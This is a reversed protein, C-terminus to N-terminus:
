RSKWFLVQRLLGKFPYNVGWFTNLFMFKNFVKMDKCILINSSTQSSESGGYVAVCSIRELDLFTTLVNNFYDM